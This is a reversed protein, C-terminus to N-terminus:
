GAPPSRGAGADAAAAAAAGGGASAPAQACQLPAAGAPLGAGGTQDTGCCRTGCPTQAGWGPPGTMFKAWRSPGGLDAVSGGGFNQRPSTLEPQFTKTPSRGGAVVRSVMAAHISASGANVGATLAAHMSRLTLPPAALPALFAETVKLLGSAATLASSAKKRQHDAHLGSNPAVPNRQTLTRKM